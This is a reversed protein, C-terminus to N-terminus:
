QAMDKRPHYTFDFSPQWTQGHDGSAEGFQRVTGDPNPTPEAECGSLNGGIAGAGALASLAKLAERRSPQAPTRRSM